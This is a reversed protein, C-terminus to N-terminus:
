VKWTPPLPIATGPPTTLLHLELDTMGSARQFEKATTHSFTVSRYAPDTTWRQSLQDIFKDWEAGTTGSANNAKVITLKSVSTPRSFLGYCILDNLQAVDRIGSPRETRINERETQTVVVVFEDHTKLLNSTTVSREAFTTFELLPGIPITVFLTRQPKIGAPHGSRVGRTWTAGSVVPQLIAQFQKARSEDGDVDLIRTHKALRQLAEKVSVGGSPTGATRQRKSSPIGRDLLLLPRLHYPDVFCLKTKNLRRGDPAECCDRRKCCKIHSPCIPEEDMNSLAWDRALQQVYHEWESASPVTTSSSDVNVFTVKAYTPKSFCPIWLFRLDPPGQRAEYDGEIGEVLSLLIVFEDNQKSLRHLGSTLSFTRRYASDLSLPSGISLFLSRQADRVIDKPWDREAQASAERIFIVSALLPQLTSLWSASYARRGFPIDLVRTYRVLRGFADNFSLGGCDPNASDRRRSPALRLRPEHNYPDFILLPDSQSCYEATPPLWLVVHRYIKACMRENLALNTARIAQMGKIDLYSIIRDFIHPYSKHDLM